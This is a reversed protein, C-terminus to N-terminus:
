VFPQVLPFLQDQVQLWAWHAVHGGYYVIGLTMYAEERWPFKGHTRDAMEDPEVDPAEVPEPVQSEASEDFEDDLDAM